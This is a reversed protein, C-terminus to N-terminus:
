PAQTRPDGSEVGYWRIATLRNAAFQMSVMPDGSGAIIVESPRRSDILRALPPSLLGPPHSAPYAIVAWQEWTADGSMSREHAVEIKSDSYSYEYYTGAHDLRVTKPKGHSNSVSELPVGPRFPGFVGLNVVAGLRVDPMLNVVM